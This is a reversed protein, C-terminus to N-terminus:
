VSENKKAGIGTGFIVETLSNFFGIVIGFEIYNLNFFDKIEVCLIISIVFIISRYLKKKKAKNTLKQIPVFLELLSQNLVNLIISFIITSLVVSVTVYLLEVVFKM